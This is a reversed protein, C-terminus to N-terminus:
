RYRAGGGAHHVEEDAKELAFAKLQSRREGAEDHAYRHEAIDGNNQVRGDGGDEGLALFHAHCLHRWEDIQAQRQRVPRTGGM